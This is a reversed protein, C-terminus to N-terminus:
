LAQARDHWRRDAQSRARPLGHWGRDAQSCHRRGTTGGATRGPLPERGASGGTTPGARPGKRQQTMPPRESGTGHAAADDLAREFPPRHRRTSPVGGPSPSGADRHGAGPPRM